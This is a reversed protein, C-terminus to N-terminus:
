KKLSTEQHHLFFRSVAINHLKQPVGSSDLPCDLHRFLVCDSSLSLKTFVQFHSSSQLSEHKMIVCPIFNVFRKACPSHHIQTFFINDSSFLYKIHNYILKSKLVIFNMPTCTNFICMQFHCCLKSCYLGTSRSTNLLSMAWIQINM